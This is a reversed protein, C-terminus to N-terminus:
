KNESPMIEDWSVRISRKLCCFYRGKVAHLSLSSDSFESIKDTLHTIENEENILLM